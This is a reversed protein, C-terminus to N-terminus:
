GFFFRVIDAHPQLQNNEDPRLFYERIMNDDHYAECRQYYAKRAEKLKYSNLNLIKITYNGEVTESVVEGNPYYAFHSECDADLPSVFKEDYHNEKAASCTANDGETICSAIINSYQMSLNAFKGLGRPKIHENLSNDLNISRCCYACLGHQQAINYTRIKRRLDKGEETKQLDDYHIGPHKKCFETWFGPEETREIYIV